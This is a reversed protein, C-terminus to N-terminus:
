HILGIRQDPGMQAVRRGTARNRRFDDFVRAATRAVVVVLMAANAHHVLSDLLSHLMAPNFGVRSHIRSHDGCHNLGALPNTSAPVADRV